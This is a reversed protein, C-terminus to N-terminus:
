LSDLNESPETGRYGGPASMVANGAANFDLGDIIKRTDVTELAKGTIHVSSCEEKPCRWESEPNYAGWEHGCSDCRMLYRPNDVKNEVLPVHIVGREDAEGEHACYLAIMGAICEDDTAGKIHHASRSDDEDKSFTQMEDLFNKSRILWSGAKIWKRATMWLKEKTDPKTYWHWKNSLPQRSDLHKWRFINPYQYVLLVADACVKGIGNYEICMLAENYMRGMLICYFALDLPEMRNDRLIAVQEDACGARGLKNVFIVSYDQGLGESIDVGISYAAKEEPMEWITVNQQEIDFRHDYECEPLYCHFGHPVNPIPKLPDRGHFRGNRDFYGVRIGAVKDPDRITENVAEQSAMDFVGVGEIQFSEEGTLCLERLHEKLAERDNDGEANRRKIEKWYLIEDDMLFPQLTGEQCASCRTGMRPEGRIAATFYQRCKDCRVWELKVRERMAVEEKKPTWDKPPKRRRSSEFFFPLFLPYWEAEEGMRECKRWLSHTYSGAEKGTTELFGFAEPTEKLAHLLDGEIIARAKPQYWDAIESAHVALLKRGQGVGSMQNSHQVYIHSNLGPHIAREEAIKKDFWIQDKEERSALEPKLWWPMRDYIHMMLSFLYSSHDADVSVVLGETNPYFMARWAMMAEVLLSTGLQRAKVVFIKQPRGQAKLEYYKQLILYQSEWLTMLLDRGNNDTIWFYNRAAYSIDEACLYFQEMVADREGKKLTAFREEASMRNWDRYQDPIEDFVQIMTEVQPDRKWTATPRDENTRVIIQPGSPIILATDGM